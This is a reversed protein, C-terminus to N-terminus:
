TCDVSLEDGPVQVCLAITESDSTVLTRDFTQHKLVWLLVVQSVCQEDTCPEIVFQADPAHVM